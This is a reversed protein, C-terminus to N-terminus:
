IYTKSLGGGDHDEPSEGERLRVLTERPLIERTVTSLYGQLPEGRHGGFHGRLVYLCTM